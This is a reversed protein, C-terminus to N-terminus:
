KEEEYKNKIDQAYFSKMVAFSDIKDLRIKKIQEIQHNEAGILYFYGDDYIIKIPSLELEKKQKSEFYKIKIDNGSSIVLYLDSLLKVIAKDHNGKCDSIDTKLYNLVAKKDMNTVNQLLSEALEMAEDERFVGTSLILKIIITIDFKDMYKPRSGTIYYSNSEKDYIVDEGSFSDSLFLRVDQIDRDFGRESIGNDICFMEKNIHQGNILKHYLALVRTIKDTRSTESEATCGGKM